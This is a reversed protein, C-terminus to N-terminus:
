RPRPNSLEGVIGYERRWQIFTKGTETKLRSWVTASSTNYSEAIQKQTYCRQIKNLIDAIDMEVWLPHESGYLTPTVAVIEGKAYRDKLTKSMSLRQSESIVRGKAANSMNRKSEESRKTGTRKTAQEKWLLRKSEESWLELTDGGDGGTTMNYGNPMLSDIESIWYRERENSFNISCEGLDELLILEFSDVGHYNISDYLRRNVKGAAHKLHAKFRKKYNRSKGIYSKGTVKNLIQYIQM